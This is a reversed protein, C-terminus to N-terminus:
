TNEIISLISLIPKNTNDNEIIYIPINFTERLETITNNFEYLHKTIDKATIDQEKYKILREKITSEPSTIYFFIIGLDSLQKMKNIFFLDNLKRNYIRGYTLQSLFSREWILIKGNAVKTLENTIYSKGTKDIGDISIICENM